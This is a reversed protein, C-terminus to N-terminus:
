AYGNLMSRNQTTTMTPKFVFSAASKVLSDLSDAMKLPAVFLAKLMDKTNIEIKGLKTHKKGLTLKELKEKWGQEQPNKEADQWSKKWGFQTKANKM